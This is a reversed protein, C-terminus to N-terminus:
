YCLVVSGSISEQTIRPKFGSIGTKISKIIIHLRFPNQWNFYMCVYMRDQAARSRKLRTCSQHLAPHRRGPAGGGEWAFFGAVGTCMLWSIHTQATLHGAVNHIDTCRTHPSTDLWMLWSIHTQATIYGAVNHTDTRHPIWGHPSTDLWMIHTQATLYGAVNHTQAALYGAM